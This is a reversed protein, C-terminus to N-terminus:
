ETPASDATEAPAEAAEEAPAEAAEEATEETEPAETPAPIDSPDRESDLNINWETFGRFVNHPNPHMGTIIGLRSLVEQKEFGIPLIVSTTALMQLYADRMPAVNEDTAALFAYHADELAEEEWHGYNLNTVNEDDPLTEFLALINWDPTIETEAYYMDFEKDRLAAKYEMWSLEKMTVPIGIAEMDQAIRRAALVKSASDACVLFQIDIEVKSGSLAFELMGDADLDRCGLKELEQLCRTPNYSLDANISSNFVPSNPHIPIASGVFAGDLVDSAIRDRNIIWTLAYRYQEYCFFDSEKNFGIYHFNTTNFTRTENKGGYGMNYISTKDNVVLDVLGNEYQTILTESDSYPQLYIKNVPLLEAGEYSDFKELYTHDESYMYPGSGVPTEELIQGAKIIPVVLRYPLMANVYDGSVYIVGQYASSYVTGLRKQYYTAGQTFVRSISYVVDEATMMSGDHMPIGEKVTLVWVGTDSMYWDSLIRSSLNFNDDVEFLNDYVLNDVMQNLASKSTIPNLKEDYDVTLSFVNDDMNGATLLQGSVSESLELEEEEPEETEAEACASLMGVLAAMCLLMATVKYFYSARKKM